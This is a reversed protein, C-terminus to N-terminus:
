LCIYICLYMYAHIPKHRQEHAARQQEDRVGRDEALERRRLGRCPVRLRACCVCVPDTKRETENEEIAIPVYKAM